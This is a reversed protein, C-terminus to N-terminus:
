FDELSALTNFVSRQIAETENFITKAEPVSFENLQPFSATNGLGNIVVQQFQELAAALENGYLPSKLHDTVWPFLALLVDLRGARLDEILRIGDRITKAFKRQAKLEAIKDALAVDDPQNMDLWFLYQQRLREKKM